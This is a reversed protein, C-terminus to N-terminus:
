WFFHYPFLFHSVSECRNEDQLIVNVQPTPQLLLLTTDSYFFVGFGPNVPKVSHEPMITIHVVQPQLMNKHFTHATKNLNKTQQEQFETNGVTKAIVSFGTLLLLALLTGFALFKKTSM